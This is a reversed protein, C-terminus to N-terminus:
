HGGRPSRPPRAAIVAVPGQSRSTPDSGSRPRSRSRSVTVSSTSCSTTVPRTPWCWARWSSSSPSRPVTSASCGTASSCVPTPPQGAALLDAVRIATDIPVAFGVGINATTFGDTQILTNIGIVRGFRDALAGGSNGPNIPADTQIMAVVSTESNQIPRDVASVIGATVSQQLSFPSGIAIALQGVQPKQGTALEAIPLPEETAVEGVAIDTNVDAGIVKGPLIPGTSLSVDVDTFGEVVHNNTLVLNDDFIVGSGLGSTTGLQVVAPGLVQAVYAAPEVDSDPPAVEVEGSGRIAPRTTGTTSTAAAEAAIETAGSRDLELRAAGFGASAVLGGAVFAILARWGWRPRRSETPRDPGSGADHGESDPPAVPPLYVPAGVGARAQVPPSSPTAGLPSWGTSSVSPPLPRAPPVPDSAPPPTTPTAQNPSTTPSWADSPRTEGLGETM